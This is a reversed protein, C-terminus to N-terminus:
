QVNISMQTARDARFERGHTDRLPTATVTYSGAQPWALTFAADTGRKLKCLAAGSEWTCAPSAPSAGPVAQRGLGTPLRVPAATSATTPAANGTWTLRYDVADNFPHCARSKLVFAGHAGAALQVPGSLGPSIATSGGPAIDSFAIHRDKMVREIHSAVQEGAVLAEARFELGWDLDTTLAHFEQATSMGATNQAAATESCGRVEGLLFPQPGARGALAEFNLSLQLATYIAPQVHVAGKVVVNQTTTTPVPANKMKGTCGRGNCEFDFDSRYPATLVFKGDLQGEGGVRVTGDVYLSM